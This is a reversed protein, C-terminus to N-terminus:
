YQNVPLLVTFRAGREPEGSAFIHGHHNEAIRKCISLGIGSGAYEAKGNLRQFIVFIKESFEQEFGIGNDSFTMRVYRTNKSLHLDPYDSHSVTDHSVHIAPPVLPKRFKLANNLLNAFLQNIQSPYAHIVPLPDCTVRAGTEEIKIELDNLVADMCKQLSVEEFDRDSSSLRSFNLLDELLTQMNRSSNMIRSIYMNGEEGLSATFRNRLREIFTSIKRLPEQLDHSAVYVFEQLNRNSKDLQVVKQELARKYFYSETIDKMVGTYETVTGLDSEKVMTEAHIRKYIGRADLLSFDTTYPQRSKRANEILTSVRDRDEPLIYERFVDFSSPVSYPALGLINFMGQSWTTVGLEFSHSYLGCRLIDEMHPLTETFKEPNFKDALM